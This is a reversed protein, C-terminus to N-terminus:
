PNGVVIEEIPDVDPDLERMYEFNFNTMFRLPQNPGNAYTIASVTFPYANTLRYRSVVEKGNKDKTEIKDILLDATYDDYYRTKIYSDPAARGRDGSITPEDNHEFIYEGWKQMIKYPTHERDLIFSIQCEQFSKTHAYKMNIGPVYGKLDGTVVNYGPLQIEDALWSFIQARGSNTNWKKDYQIPQPMPSYNLWESLGRGPVFSIQYRNSNAIGYEGIIHTKIDDIKM